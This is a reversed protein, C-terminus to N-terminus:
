DAADRHQPTVEATPQLARRTIVVGFEPTDKSGILVRAQPEALPDGRVPQISFARMDPVGVVRGRSLSIVIWSPLQSLLAARARKRSPSSSPPLTAIGRFTSRGERM